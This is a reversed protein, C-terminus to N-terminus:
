SVEGIIIRTAKVGRQFATPLLELNQRNDDILYGLKVLADLPSKYYADPDCARQGKGLIIILRVSRKGTAKPINVIHAYTGIMQADAHKLRMTRGWHKHILKNLPTPHWHPIIITYETMGASPNASGRAQRCFVPM